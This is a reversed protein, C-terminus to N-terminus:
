APKMADRRWGPDRWRGRTFDPIEVSSGQRDISERSCHFISSWAAGDYVDIWPERQQRVMEVFDHLVFYDGGGHGASEAAEGMRRWYAHDYERHHAEASEWREPRGDFFVGSRSDYVGDTGQVLYYISEPRPSNADYDVRILRGGATQILTAIFEGQAWPLRAQPSDAGFKAEAYRKLVRPSSMMSSCREMRDGDNLRLWKSVPGLAHTPYDNGYHRTVWEGWWDLSGDPKFLMFRCDHIYSCEAYYPDGFRGAHVMNMVMMVHRMYLYNELLMYRRGTAEKTRVLEWLEELEFGAPVECGVDRGAKMAEIAMPCHWKTPTAILVADIEERELMAAYPNSGDSYEAPPRGGAERVMTAAHEVRAADLDCVARVEVGPMKLLGALLWTGRSGVGAVGLRVPAPDGGRGSSRRMAATFGAVAATGSKLFVRRNM